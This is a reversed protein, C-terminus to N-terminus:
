VVAVVVGAAAAIMSAILGTQIWLLRHVESRVGAIESRLEAFGTDVYGRLEALDAKTACNDLKEELRRIDETTALGARGDRVAAAVAEAQRKEFGSSELDRAVALVDFEPRTMDMRRIYVPAPGPAVGVRAGGGAGDRLERFPTAATM